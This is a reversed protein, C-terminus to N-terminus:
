WSNWIKKVCLTIYFLGSLSGIIGFFKNLCKLTLVGSFVCIIKTLLFFGVLCLIGKNNSRYWWTLSIVWRRHVVAQLEWINWGWLQLLCLQRFANGLFNVIHAFVWGKTCADYSVVMKLCCNFIFKIMRSGELSVNNYEFCLGTHYIFHRNFTNSM